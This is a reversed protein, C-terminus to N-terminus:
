KLNNELLKFAGDCSYIKPDKLPVRIHETLCNGIYKCSSCYKNKITRNYEEKHWNEYEELSDLIRFYENNNEDFDLVALKNQPTIYLHNDSFATYKKNISNEILEKNIFKFTMEKEKDLLKLLFEEYKKQYSSNSLKNTQNSSYKKIELSKINSSSNLKNIFDVININLIEPIALTLISIDKNVLKINEFVKDNNQRFISDYSVSLSINDFLFYPNIISLNTIINISNVYKQLIKDLQLLYKIPLIGIEGGYLDISSIKKYSNIQELIKELEILTIKQKDRLQEKSLYCFNCSFNCKYSANLSLNM